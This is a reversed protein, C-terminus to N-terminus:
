TGDLEKQKKIIEQTVNWISFRTFHDESLKGKLEDLKM